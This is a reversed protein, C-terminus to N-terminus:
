QWSIATAIGLFVWSLLFLMGILPAIYRLWRDYPVRALALMALTGGSTPVLLNTLGDGVQFAFIATQRTVGILDSLPILIPMTVMAQGSGSPIFINILANVVTMLVASLYPPFQALPSALANVITESVMADEFIVQIARALGIVLAGGAIAGAGKIMQEVATNMPIRHIVATTIAIMVFIASFHNIHWDYAMVGIFLFTLFGFFAIITLVDEPRMRYEDAHKELQLGATSISAVSSAIRGDLLRTYYRCNYWALASLCALCFVSRLLAGSFIPLEAIMQSTGVTFVNIPSTAFGVGIAGLSVGAGLLLDGRIALCIIVAIPVLAINSEFGVAIGLIGYVFTVIVILLKARSQGIVRIASGVANELTRSYELVQFAAGSIFALFIINAASVLGEPIAMFVDMFTAPNGEIYHFSGPVVGERGNALTVKDFAGAPIIHTLIAAVIIIGFILAFPHPIKELWSPTSISTPAADDTQKM